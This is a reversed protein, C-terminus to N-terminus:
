DGRRISLYIVFYGVLFRGLDKCQTLRTARRTDHQTSVNPKLGYKAVIGKGREVCTEEEEDVLVERM